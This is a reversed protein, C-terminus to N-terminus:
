MQPLTLALHELVMKTSGGRQYLFDRCKQIQGLPEFFRTETPNGKNGTRLSVLKELVIELENVFEIAKEKDKNKIINQIMDLRKAPLDRLFKEYFKKKEEDIIERKMRGNIVTLRSRLTPIVDELSSVIVFFHTGEYPEEFTKLLANASEISFSLIEVVFVKSDGFFPRMSAKRRLEQSDKVSFLEFQQHFFDPHTELRGEPSLIAKATEFAMKRSVEFDGALLYGHHFNGSEINIKM